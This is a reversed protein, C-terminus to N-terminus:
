QNLLDLGAKISARIASKSVGRRNADPLADLIEEVAEAIQNGNPTDGNQYKKHKAALVLSLAAVQKRLSARESESIPTESPDPNTRTPPKGTHKDVLDQLDEAKILVCARDIGDSDAVFDLSLTSDKPADDRRRLIQLLHGDNDLLLLGGLLHTQGHREDVHRAIGDYRTANVIRHYDNLVEVKNNMFTFDVFGRQLHEETIPGLEIAELNKNRREEEPDGGGYLLPFVRRAYSNRADYWAPLDSPSIAEVIDEESISEDLIKSVKAAAEQVSYWRKLTGIRMM